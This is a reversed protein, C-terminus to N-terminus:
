TKLFKLEQVSILEDSIEGSLVPTGMLVKSKPEFNGESKRVM